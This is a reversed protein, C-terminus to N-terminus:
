KACPHIKKVHCITASPAVAMLQKKLPLRPKILLRSQRRFTLV